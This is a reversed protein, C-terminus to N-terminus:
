LIEEVSRIGISVLRKRMKKLGSQQAMWIGGQTINGQRRAAERIGIDNVLWQLAARESETLAGSAFRLLLRVESLRAGALPETNV